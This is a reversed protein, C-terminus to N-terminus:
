GSEELRPNVYEIANGITRIQRAEETSIRLGYRQEMEIQLEIFAISDLGLDEFSANLDDPVELAPRGFLHVLIGKM